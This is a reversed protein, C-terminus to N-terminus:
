IQDPLNKYGNAGDSPTFAQSKFFFSIKEHWKSTVRIYKYKCAYKNHTEELLLLCQIMVDVANPMHSGLGMGVDPYAKTSFEAGKALPVRTQRPICKIWM